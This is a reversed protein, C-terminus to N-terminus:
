PSTQPHLVRTLDTKLFAGDLTILREGTLRAHAYAFCDGFNLPFRTRAEAVLRVVEYTASIPQITARALMPELLPFAAPYKSKVALFAEAINTWPMRLADAPFLGLTREIWALKPDALAMEVVISADVIV